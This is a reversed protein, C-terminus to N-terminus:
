NWTPCKNCKPSKNNGKFIKFNINPLKFDVKKRPKKFKKSFYHTKVVKDVEKDVNEIDNINTNIVFFSINVYVYRSDQDNYSGQEFLNTVNILDENINLIKLYILISNSRAKSLGENDPTLGMDILVKQLRDSIPMKDTSSVIEINSLIGNQEVIQDLANNITDTATENIKFKGSDFLINKDFKLSLTYTTTDKGYKIVNKYLTDIETYTKKWGLRLMKELFDSESATDSVNFTKKITRIYNKKDIREVGVKPPQGEDSTSKAKLSFINFLLLILFIWSKVGENLECYLKYDKIIM